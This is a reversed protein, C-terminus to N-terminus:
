NYKITATPFLNSVKGFDEQKKVTIEFQNNILKVSASIGVSKLKERIDKTYM